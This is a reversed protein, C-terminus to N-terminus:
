QATEMRAPGRRRHCWPEGKSVLGVWSPRVTRTLAPQSALPLFEDAALATQILLAPEGSARVEVEVELEVGDVAVRRMGPQSM